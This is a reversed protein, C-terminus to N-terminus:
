EACYQSLYDGSLADLIVKISDIRHFADDKDIVGFQRTGVVCAGFVKFEIRCINGELAVAVSAILLTPLVSDALQHVLDEVAIRQIMTGLACEKGFSTRDKRISTTFKLPM